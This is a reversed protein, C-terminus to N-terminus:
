RTESEVRSYHPRYLSSLVVEVSLLCKPSSRLTRPFSEILKVQTGANPFGVPTLSKPSVRLMQPFNEIPMVQMEVNQFEV